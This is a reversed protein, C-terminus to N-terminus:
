RRESPTAGAQGARQRVEDPMEKKGGRTLQVRTYESAYQLLMRAENKPLKSLGLWEDFTM